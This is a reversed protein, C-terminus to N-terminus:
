LRLFSVLSFFESAVNDGYQKEKMARRQAAKKLELEDFLLKVRQDELIDQFFFFPNSVSM